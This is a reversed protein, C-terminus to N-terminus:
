GRDEKPPVISEQRNLLEEIMRISEAAKNHVLKVRKWAEGKPWIVTCDRISYITLIAIQFSARMRAIEEAMSEPCTHGPKFEEGCDPCQPFTPGASSLKDIVPSDPEEGM